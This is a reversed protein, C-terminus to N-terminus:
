ESSSWSMEVDKRRCKVIAKVIIIKRWPGYCCWHHSDECRITLRM